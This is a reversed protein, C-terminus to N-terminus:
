PRSNGLVWGEGPPVPCVSGAIPCEGCTHVDWRELARYDAGAIRRFREVLDAEIGPGDAATFEFRVEQPAGADDLVQPRVFVIRIRECGDALAALAYTAAQLSYRDKLEGPEGSSGTKYDLILAEAGSRGYADVNGVLTFRDAAEGIHFAFPWERRVIECAELDGAADSALYAGVTEGLQGLSADDLDFARALAALREPSPPRERTSVELAAHVASGFTMPRDDGVSRASGVRLVKTAWFKLSCSEFVSFDSYSLRELAPRPPPTASPRPSVADAASSPVQYPLAGPQAQEPQAEPEAAWGAADLWRISYATEGATRIAACPEAYEGLSLAGRVWEIPLTADPSPPKTFSGCGSLLLVERARTCAVYFLRQAEALEAAKQRERVRAYLESYGAGPQAVSSMETPLRMALTTIDDLSEWLAIPGDNRGISGLEPLAVVPFELGKSSHVSMIRVATTHEDALSAPVTHDRYQEKAALYSVFAAPGAGGSAEFADAMSALKLINAFGLRGDQGGALLTLDYDLEEVARLLVESLRCNGARTRARDLAEIFAAARHADGPQLKAEGERLADWVSESKGACGRGIEWLGEPTLGVADSSLLAALAEDDHPNAIAALLARGIAVSPVSFFRSGGVIAATFGRRTLAKAYDDSHTYTRLLVVMDGPDVGHEDRLEALREALQDAELCRGDVYEGDVRGARVLTLDVRPVRQPVVAAGEDRGPRLSILSDGFLDAFVHNVFALVDPHSRYNQDLVFERAGAARMRENHRRYVDVAAGRFGYISQQEDGVTCLNDGAVQSVLALQLEDTDQFEDVMVMRFQARLAALVGPRTTLLRLAEIQLDDFDLLGRQQKLDSFADMYRGTLAVLESAHPAMMAAVAQALLREREAKLGAAIEKVSSARGSPRFRALAKWVERAIDPESLGSCEISELMEVTTCCGNLLKTADAREDGCGRVADRGEALVGIAEALLRHASTSPEVRIESPGATRMRLADALDAVASYVADFEFDGLLAGDGVAPLGACAQEFAAEKLRELEINDAVVFAPDIGAEIAYRRLVRSCLSHITGIWASDTERADVVRGEERLTVRVRESIEGAAKDTFTIALVGDVPAPDWGEEPDPSLARVFRNVLTRTKGSGAGASILVRGKLARAAGEQGLNPKEIVLDGRMSGQARL